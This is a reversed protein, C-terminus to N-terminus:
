MDPLLQAGSRNSLTRKKTSHIGSASLYYPCLWFRSFIMQKMRELTYKRNETLRGRNRKSRGDGKLWFVRPPLADPQQFHWVAKDHGIETLSGLQLTHLPSTHINQFVRGPPWCRWQNQATPQVWRMRHKWIGYIPRYINNPEKVNRHCGM